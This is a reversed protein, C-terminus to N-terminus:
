RISGSLAANLTALLQHTGPDAIGDVMTPRFHRQFARVVIQTHSDYSGTAPIGYGYRALAEQLEMVAEGRMGPILTEGKPEITPEAWQGVGVAALDRWPFREGPDRKRSPAIDSHALVREPRVAHRRMIDRCLNIVAGIQVDPFAPLDFDHGGNVIEIGISASNMDTVGAWSSRGAHWARRHESVLQLITGAEDVVYHCSVESAPNCLWDVASPGDHMGTYHLVISDPWDVPGLRAGHNPSRRTQDIGVLDSTFRRLSDRVAPEAEIATIAFVSRIAM